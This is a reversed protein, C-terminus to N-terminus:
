AIILLRGNVVLQVLIIISTFSIILWGIDIRSQESLYDVYDDVAYLFVTLEVCLLLWECAITKILDSHKQPTTTILYLGNIM